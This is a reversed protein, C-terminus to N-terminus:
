EDSNESTASAESASRPSQFGCSFSILIILPSHPHRAEHQSQGVTPSPVLQNSQSERSLLMVELEARFGMRSAWAVEAEHNRQCVEAAARKLCNRMGRIRAPDTDHDDYQRGLFARVTEQRLSVTTHEMRDHM